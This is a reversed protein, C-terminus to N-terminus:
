QVTFSVINFTSKYTTVGPLVQGSTAHLTIALQSLIIKLVSTIKEFSLKQRRKNYIVHYWVYVTWLKFIQVTQQSWCFNNIVVQCTKNGTEAESGSSSILTPAWFVSSERSTAHRATRASDHSWGRILYQWINNRAVEFRSLLPVLAKQWTAACWRTLTPSRPM